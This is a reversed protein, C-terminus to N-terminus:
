FPFVRLKNGFHRRLSAIGDPVQLGNAPLMLAFTEIRSADVVNALAPLAAPDLPYVRLRFHRLRKLLPSRVLVAVTQTDIRTGLNLDDLMPLGDPGALPDVREIFSVTDLELKRLDKWTPNQIATALGNTDLDGHVSLEKLGALRPSGALIALRRGTAEPDESYEDPMSVELAELGALNAASALVEAARDTWLLVNLRKLQRARPATVVTALNNAFAAFPDAVGHYSPTDLHLCELKALHPSQLFNALVQPDFDRLVLARLGALHPGEPWHDVFASYLTLNHLPSVTPWARLFGSKGYSIEVADPLGRRFTVQTLTHLIEAQRPDFKRSIWFHKSQYPDGAAARLGVRSAFRGLRGGPKPAPAPFGVAACVEAWWGIWHEDFLAQAERELEARANSNVHLREAEVQLRIFRARTADGNEELCDAYVLRATDDAPDSVIAALLARLDPTM